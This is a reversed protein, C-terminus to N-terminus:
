LVVNYITGDNLPLPPEADGQEARVYLRIPYKRDEISKIKTQLNALARYITNLQNKIDFDTTTMTHTEEIPNMNM